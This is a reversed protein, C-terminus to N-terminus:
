RAYYRDCAEQIIELYRELGMEELTKLYVTEYDDLSLEGTIFKVRAEVIYTNIDSAIKSYEAADLESVQFEPMRYKAGDHNSWTVAAERQQPRWFYQEAYVTSQVFPGGGVAARNYQAMAQQMSLGDPNKTIWETYTPVGDVMTYSEGEVGFNLLLHGAETYCFNLFQMALEKNECAPTIWCYTAGVPKGAQGSMSIEGNTCTMSPMAVVDFEPREVEMTSMYTGIGGGINAHWAAQLDGYVGNEYKTFSTDMLGKDALSKFWALVEKFEPEAYGCHVEGDVQYLDARVLGFPSTWYGYVIAPGMQQSPFPHEIGKDVCAQLYAELEEPTTPVEMNFERLWDARLLMGSANQLEPEDQIIAFGIYEGDDTKITRAVDESGANIVAMYDPAYTNMEEETLPVMVGDSIARSPGGSYNTYPRGWVIDPLEGGAFMLNLANYDEVVIFEIDVGTQEALAKAFPTASIDKSVSAIPKDNVIAISLTEDTDLPYTIGTAEVDASDDVSNEVAASDSGAVDEAGCGAMTGLVMAGALIAGLIRSAKKRM